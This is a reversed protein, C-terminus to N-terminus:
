SYNRWALMENWLNPDTFNASGEKVINYTDKNAADLKSLGVKEILNQYTSLNM